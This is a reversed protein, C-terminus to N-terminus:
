PYCTSSYLFNQDFEANFGNTGSINKNTLSKIIAEIEKYNILRNLNNVQDQNLKTIHYRVLFIDMEEVYKLKTSYLNKYWSRHIRQIEKTDTTM